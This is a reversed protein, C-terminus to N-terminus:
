RVHAVVLPHDSIRGLPSRDVTYSTFRAPRTALIQDILTPRPPTCSRDTHSGGAASTMLGSATLACHYSTRENMDGVLFVPLGHERRLRHVLAIERQKAIARWRGQRPHSATDAPNHVNVVLLEQGSARHRLRVVPMRVPQGDFYPIPVRTSGTLTFSARRWAIANHPGAGPFVGWAGRVAATFARHQPSQFEQLGVVDVRHRNLLGVAWRARVPGPAMGPAKGGPETHSHGLPNFTAITFGTGAAAAPVAPQRQGVRERLWALADVPRDDVRVELHLHAGTTNGTAGVAGIVTGAQVRDGATVTTASLHAYWTQVGDPHTVQILNGYAGGWGVQNVVGAAVASVPVGAATDFDTGTHCDAWLASCEGFRATITYGDPVPSVWTGVGARRCSASATALDVDGVAAVTDVALGEWRAYASPFASVQVAQAAAAVSMAQWGPIDLLGRQGAQGGTFFMRASAAVDMRDAIPGWADRQQFIGVSDHDGPAVGDHPHGLSGPNAYSALNLISAEQRATALAVVWGRPPVGLRRGVGIITAANRLQTDSLSTRSAAAAPVGPLPVACGPPTSTTAADSLMVSMMAVVVYVGVLVPATLLLGGALLTKGTSV